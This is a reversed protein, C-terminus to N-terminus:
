LLTGDVEEPLTVSPVVNGGESTLQEGIGVEYGVTGIVLTHADPISENLSDILHKMQSENYLDWEVRLVEVSCAQEIVMQLSFAELHLGLDLLVEEITLQSLSGVELIVDNRTQGVEGLDADVVEPLTRGFICDYCGVLVEEHLELTVDHM